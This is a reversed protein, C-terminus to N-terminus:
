SPGAQQRQQEQRQQAEHEALKSAVVENYTKTEDPFAAAVAQTLEQHMAQLAAVRGAVLQNDSVATRFTSRVFDDPHGGEDIFKLLATPVQTQSFAAALQRFQELGEAFEQMRTQLLQPSDPQMFDGAMVELEYLQRLLHSLVKHLQKEQEKSM